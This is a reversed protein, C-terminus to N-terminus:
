DAQCPLRRSADERLMSLEVGSPMRPEGPSSTGRRYPLRAEGLVDGQLSSCTRRRRGSIRAGSSRRVPLRLGSTPETELRNLRAPAVSRDTSGEPPTRGLQGSRVWNLDFLRSSVSIRLSITVLM